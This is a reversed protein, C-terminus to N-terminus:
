NLQYGTDELMSKIEFVHKRDRTELEVTVASETVNMDPHMRDHQVSVINAGTGSIINLLRALQGPKDSLATRIMAKRGTRILGKDIIRSIMTVDINGGSLIAVTPKDQLLAIKKSLVAAVAAAGAGESVIKGKELLHLIARAVDDDDVTIIDDLLESCYPYTIEGPTKVAIGDAITIASALTVIRQAQISAKMSAASQPEVGIVRIEPNISKAAVAIGSALGGGGIPVLIQGADVEDLIELALTGQGAIVREDNFPHIFTAGSEKALSLAHVCADDYTNGHLVVNVGYHETAAIKSLPAGTPMVITCRLGLERAARAVGQAHNGASAAMVGASKQAESLQLMCNFAGRVKYAGTAQLNELKIFLEGDPVSMQTIETKRIYPAIRTQAGRIDDITIPM